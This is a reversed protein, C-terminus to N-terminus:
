HNIISSGVGRWGHSSYAYTAYERMVYAAPNSLPPLPSAPLRRVKMGMDDGGGLLHNINIKWNAVPRECFFEIDCCISILACNAALEVLFEIRKPHVGMVECM